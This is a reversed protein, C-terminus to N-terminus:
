GWFGLTWPVFASCDKVQMAFTVHTMKPEYVSLTRDFADINQDYNITEDSNDPKRRRINLIGIDVAAQDDFEYYGGQFMKAFVKSPPFDISWTASYWDDGTTYAYEWGAKEGALAMTIITILANHKSQRPNEAEESRGM